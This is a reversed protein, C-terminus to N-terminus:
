DWYYEEDRYVGSAKCDKLSTLDGDEKEYRVRHILCNFCVWSKQSDSWRWIPTACANCKDPKRTAPQGENDPIDRAWGPVDNQKAPERRAPQPTPATRPKTDEGTWLQRRSALDIIKRGM